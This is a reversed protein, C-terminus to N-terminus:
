AEGAMIERNIYHRTQPRNGTTSETTSKKDASFFAAYIPCNKMPCLPVSDPMYGTIRKINNLKYIECFLNRIRTGGTRTPGPAGFIDIPQRCITALGNAMKSLTEWFNGM